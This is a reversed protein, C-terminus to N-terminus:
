QRIPPGGGRYGIEAACRRRQLVGAALGVLLAVLHERGDVPLPAVTAALVAISLLGASLDAGSAVLLWGGVAVTAASPGSDTVAALSAPMGLVAIHRMGIMARLALSSLYHGCCAVALLRGRSQTLEAAGFVVALQLAAAWFPLDPTPLLASVPLRLLERDLPLAADVTGARRLWGAPDSLHLLATVTLSAIAAGTGLWPRRGAQWGEILRGALLRAEGAWRSGMSLDAGAM